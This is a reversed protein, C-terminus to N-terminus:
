RLLRARATSRDALRGLQDEGGKEGWGDPRSILEDGGPNAVCETLWDPEHGALGQVLETAALGVEGKKATQWIHSEPTLRTRRNGQYGSWYELSGAVFAAWDVEGVDDHGRVARHGRELLQTGSGPGAVPEVRMGAREDDQVVQQLHALVSAEETPDLNAAGVLLRDTAHGGALHVARGDVGLHQRDLQAVVGVESVANPHYGREAGGGVHGQHGAGRGTLREPLLDAVDDGPETAIFGVPVPECRPQEATEDRDIVRCVVVDTPHKVGDLV